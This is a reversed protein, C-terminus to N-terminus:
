GCMDVECKSHSYRKKRFFVVYRGRGPSSVWVTPNLGVSPDLASVM